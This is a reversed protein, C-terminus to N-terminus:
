KKEGRKRLVGVVECLAKVAPHTLGWGADDTDIILLNDYSMQLKNALERCEQASLGEVM